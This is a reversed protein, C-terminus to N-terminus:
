CQEPRLSESAQPALRLGSTLRTLIRVDDSRASSVESGLIEIWNRTVLSGSSSLGGAASECEAALRLQM